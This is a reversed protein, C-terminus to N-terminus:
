RQKQKGNNGNPLTTARTQRNKATTTAIAKTIALTLTIITVTPIGQGNPRSQWCVAMPCPRSSRTEQFYFIPSDWVQTSIIFKYFTKRRVKLTVGGGTREATVTAAILLWMLPSFRSTPRGLRSNSWVALHVLYFSLFPSRLLRRIKVRLSLHLSHVGKLGESRSLIGVVSFTATYDDSRPTAIRM